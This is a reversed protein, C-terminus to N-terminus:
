PILREFAEAAETWGWHRQRELAAAHQRRWLGDDALLRVAADAFPGDGDAVFGTEGDVVREVVSGLSQVVTPVGLAQAEGVALCFTENPDGRYLMVRAVRLEDVLQAKPVPGRLVVGTPALSRAKALVTEMAQAKAAGASGYTAAGSFVHLEAGPTRPRIASAWLDLLWDLGRLPNSTFIARPGPPAAAPVATRFLDPIGYPIVVRGGDPAWAPYTTRHYHGIFIIVPRVRWLRWLYRWKLLYQAPNHIWFVTRRAGPMADILRHGRNAIYLDVEDPLGDTIPRWSVGKHDLPGDCNNCVTVAHGRRALEEVLAVVSSEAGGLPGREPTTGDFRIGDDALVIRAM